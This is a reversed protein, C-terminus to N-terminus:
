KGAEGSHRGRDARRRVVGDIKVKFLRASRREPNFWGGEMQMGPELASREAGDDGVGHRDSPEVSRMGEEGGVALRESCRTNAGAKEHM